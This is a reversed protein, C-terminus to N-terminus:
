KEMKRRLMEQLLAKPDNKYYQIENLTQDIYTFANKYKPSEKVEKRYRNVEERSIIEKDVLIRLLVQIDVATNLILKRDEIDREAQDLNSMQDSNLM